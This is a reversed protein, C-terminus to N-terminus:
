VQNNNTTEEHARAMLAHRPRITRGLNQACFPHVTVIPAFTRLEKTHCVPVGPFQPVSNIGTQLEQHTLLIFFSVDHVYM